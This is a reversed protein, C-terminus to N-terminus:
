QYRGRAVALGVFYALVMLPWVHRYSLDDVPLTMFRQFLGLLLLLGVSVPFAFALAELQIRRQLEDLRRILRLEAAVLWIFGAVAALSIGAKVGIPLAARSAALAAIYTVAFAAAAILAPRTAPSAASRTDTSNM